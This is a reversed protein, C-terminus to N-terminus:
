WRCIVFHCHDNLNLHFVFLSIVWKFTNFQYFPPGFVGLVSYFYILKFRVFYYNM